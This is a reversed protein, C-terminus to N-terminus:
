PSSPPNNLMSAYSGAQSNLQSVGFLNTPGHAFVGDDNGQSQPQPPEFLNGSTKPPLASTAFSNGSAPTTKSTEGVPKQEENEFNSGPLGGHASAKPFGFTRSASARPYGFTLPAVNNRPAYSDGTQVSSTAFPARVHLGSLPDYTTEQGPDPFERVARLIAQQVDMVPQVRYLEKNDLHAEVRRNLQKYQEILLNRTTSLDDNTAM